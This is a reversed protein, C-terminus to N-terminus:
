TVRCAPYLHVHLDNWEEAFRICSALLNGRRSMKFTAEKMSRKSKEKKKEEKRGVGLNLPSHIVQFLGLAISAATTWARDKGAM